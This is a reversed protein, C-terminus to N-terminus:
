HHPSLHLVPFSPCQAHLFITPVSLGLMPELASHVCELSFEGAHTGGEIINFNKSLWAPPDEFDPTDLVLIVHDLSYSSITPEMDFQDVPCIRVEISISYIYLHLLSLPPPLIVQHTM